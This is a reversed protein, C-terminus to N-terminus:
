IKVMTTPKLYYGGIEYDVWKAPKIITPLAKDLHLMNVDELDESMYELLAPNISLYKYPYENNGKTM